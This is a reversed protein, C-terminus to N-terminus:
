QSEVNFQFHVNHHLVTGCRRWGVVVVIVNKHFVHLHAFLDGDGGNVFSAARAFALDESRQARHRLRFFVLNLLFRNIQTQFGPGGLIRVEDDVQAQLPLSTGGYVRHRRGAGVCRRRWRGRLCRAFARKMQVV